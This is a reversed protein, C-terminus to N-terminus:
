KQMAGLRGLAEEAASRVPPTADGRALCENLLAVAKQPRGLREHVRATELLAEAARDDRPYHVVVRMFAWGARIVDEDSAATALLARGKTLLLEPVVWNDADRIAQDLWGFAEPTADSSMVAELARAQIAYTREARIAAPLKLRAITEAMVAARDDGLRAVLEYRVLTVLARGDDSRVRNVATDLQMLARDSEPSRKYPLGDPLLLTALAPGADGNELVRLFHFITKDIRETRDFSLVLRARILDAWFGSALREAREYRASARVDDGDFAYQEATNFDDMGAMQDVYIRRALRVDARQAKGDAARFTVFGAEFGTIKANRYQTSGDDIQDAAARTATVITVLALVLARRAPRSPRRARAACVGARRRAGHFVGSDQRPSRM